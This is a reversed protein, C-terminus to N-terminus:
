MILCIRHFVVNKVCLFSSLSAYLIFKELKPTVKRIEYILPPHKEFLLLINESLVKQFWSNKNCLYISSIFLLVSAAGVSRMAATFVAMPFLSGVRELLVPALHAFEAAPIHSLTLQFFRRLLLPAIQAATQVRVHTVKPVM